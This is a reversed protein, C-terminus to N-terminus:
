SADPHREWHTKTLRLIDNLSLGLQAKAIKDIRTLESSKLQM